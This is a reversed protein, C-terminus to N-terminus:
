KRKLTKSCEQRPSLSFDDEKSVTGPSTKCWFESQDVELCSCLRQKVIYVGSIWEAATDTVGHFAVM